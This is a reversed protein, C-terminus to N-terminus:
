SQAGATAAPAYVACDQGDDRTTVVNMYPRGDEPAVQVFEAGVYDERETAEIKCRTGKQVFPVTLGHLGPCAHFRTHPRSERTADKTYCNPCEWETVPVNLLPVTM